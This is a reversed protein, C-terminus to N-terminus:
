TRNIAKRVTEHWTTKMLLDGSTSSRSFPSSVFITNWQPLISKLFNDTGHGNDVFFFVQNTQIKIVIKNM